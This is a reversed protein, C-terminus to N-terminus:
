AYTVVSLTTHTFVGYEFKKLADRYTMKQATVVDLATSIFRKSDSILLM